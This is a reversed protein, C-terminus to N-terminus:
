GDYWLVGKGIKPNEFKEKVQSGMLAFKWFAIGGVHQVEWGDARERITVEILKVNTRTNNLMMKPTM